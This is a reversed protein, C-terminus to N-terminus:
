PCCYIVTGTADGSVITCESLANTPGNCFIAHAPPDENECWYNSQPLACYPPIDVDWIDAAADSAGADKMDAIRGGCGSVAVALVLRTLRRQATRQPNVPLLLHRRNRESKGDPETQVPFAANSVGHLQSAKASPLLEWLGLPGSDYRRMRGPARRGM